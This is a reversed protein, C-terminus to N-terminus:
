RVGSGHADTWPQDVLEGPLPNPRKQYGPPVVGPNVAVDLAGNKIFIRAYNGHADYNAAASAWNSMFGVAEPTYPRLYSLAPRLDDVLSDLGPAVRHVGDLLEPTWGLLRQTSTLAPRLEAVMPRLDSLVPRLNRAVPPLREAAPRLDELLPVVEDASGPVKDLTSTAQRLTAPLKDLAEALAKRERVTAATSRSLGDIVERIREESGNLTSVLGDFRHVLQRIAEGDGGLDRLMEGLAQLAPGASRVTKNVDRENGQLTARLKKVVGVLRKRTPEDLAALVQDMEMPAPMRGSLMGGDPIPAASPAGDAVTLLREGLLAKWEVTVVAGDHLPAFDEDLTFSVHAKGDKVAIQSIEGATVGKVQVVGGEVLNTAATLVVSVQYDRTSVAAWGVTAFLIGVLLVILLPRRM